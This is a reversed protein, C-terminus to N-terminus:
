DRNTLGNVCSKPMHMNQTRLTNSARRFAREFGAMSFPAAHLTM